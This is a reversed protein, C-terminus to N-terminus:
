YIEKLLNLWHMQTNFTESEGDPITTGEPTHGVGVATNDKDHTSDHFVLLPTLEKKPCPFFVAKRGSLCGVHAAINLPNVFNPSM